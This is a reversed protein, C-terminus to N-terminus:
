KAPHDGPEPCQPDNLLEDLEDDTPTWTAARQLNDVLADWQALAIEQEQEDIAKRVFDSVTGGRCEVIRALKARHEEDLRIEIRPGIRVCM